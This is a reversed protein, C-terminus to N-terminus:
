ATSRHQGERPRDARLRGQINLAWTGLQGDGPRFPVWTQAGYPYTFGTPLVGVVVHPEGNLRLTSGVAQEVGGFERLALGHAVLAVRSARGAAEEDAAFDRGALPRVGLTRLWGATVVGGILREPGEATTMTFDTFRFGAVREFADSEDRVLMFAPSRPSLNPSGAEPVQYIRVLQDPDEFPLAPQLATKGIGFIAANLGIGIALTLVVVLSFFPHKRMQRLAYRLDLM